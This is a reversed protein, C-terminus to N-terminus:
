RNRGSNIHIRGFKDKIVRYEAKKPWKMKYEYSPLIYPQMLGLLASVNSITSVVIVPGSPDNYHYAGHVGLSSLLYELRVVERESYSQTAFRAEIYGPGTSIERTSGDGEFWNAVIVPTLYISAPLIKVGNMYWKLHQETLYECVQSDLVAYTYAKGKSRGMGLKPYIPNVPVRLSILSEKIVNLWDMHKNGESLSMHFHANRSRRGLFVGADSLMAGDFVEQATTM